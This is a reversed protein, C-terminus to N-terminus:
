KSSTEALLCNLTFQTMEMEGEQVQKISEIQVDKVAAMFDAAGKLQQVLKTVSGMGSESEGELAMGQIILGKPLELTLETFWVGEPTMDSLTNLRQAWLARGKSLEQFAAEQARLRQLIEQLREVEAKKPELVRINGELIRLQQAHMGVPLWLLVPIGVAVVVVIVMLPSRHFQEVKTPTTKRQEDPLLNIKLM